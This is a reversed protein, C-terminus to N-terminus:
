MLFINNKIMLLCLKIQFYSIKLDDGDNDLYEKLPKLRGNNIVNKSAHKVRDIIKYDIGLRVADILSSNETFKEFLHEEITRERFGRDRAIEKITKGKKYLKWSKEITTEKINENELFLTGYKVIFDNNVGDIRALDDHTKPKIDSIISLVKDNIIMYPAVNMSLALRQRIKEYKKNIPLSRNHGEIHIKFEDGLKKNGLCITPYAFTGYKEALYGESLMMKFLNKWWDVSKNMGKGYYINSKHKVFSGRLIKILKTRGYGYFPLSNVLGKALHAEKLVDVLNENKPKYDQICNDCLNCAGETTIKGSFDGNEFYHEILIQRCDKRNKIYQQFINLINLKNQPSDGKSVLFKNTYYDTEGCYMIVSSPMGDRGARGIEQYYTELNCPSGYNIVKRIDSKDIGMGFCVTAVIVNIKDTIFLNHNKEKKEQSLGGHYYGVKFGNKKLLNYIKETMKRTQTYIITSEDNKIDLDLDSLIDSSKSKIHISLNERATGLQYQNADDLNLTEFIDNLVTPTATATLAMVPIGPFIKKIFKLERYSPRFDHGWDSLCHAEDIAILGIVDTITKFIHINKAMYEPTTYIIKIEEQDPNTYGNEGNLCIAGIGKQQLHKQQDNMLSILPSIVVSKKNLYTAPFQYCLSKGGGTPFLVISDKGELTDQIIEEQFDRFNNFGYQQKLHKRM